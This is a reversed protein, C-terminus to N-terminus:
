GFSWKVATMLIELSIHDSLNYENNNNYEPIGFGM